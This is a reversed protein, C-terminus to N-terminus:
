FTTVYFSIYYKMAGCKYTTYYHEQKTRWNVSIFEKIGPVSITFSAAADAGDVFNLVTYQESVMGSYLNYTYRHIVTYKVSGHLGYTTKAYDSLILLAKRREGVRFLYEPHAFRSPGVLCTQNLSM